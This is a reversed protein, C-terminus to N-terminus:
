FNTEKETTILVEKAPSHCGPNSQEWQGSLTLLQKKPQPLDEAPATLQCLRQLFVFWCVRLLDRNILVNLLGISLLLGVDNATPLPVALVSESWKRIYAEQFVRSFPVAPFYSVM